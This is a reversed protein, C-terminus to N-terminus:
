YGLDDGDESYELIWGNKDIGDIRRTSVIKYETGLLSSAIRLAERQDQISEAIRGLTEQDSYFKQKLSM